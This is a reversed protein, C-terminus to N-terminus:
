GTSPQIVGGGGAAGIGMVTLEKGGSHAWTTTTGCGAEDGSSIPPKGAISTRTDSPQLPLKRWNKSWSAVLPKAIM